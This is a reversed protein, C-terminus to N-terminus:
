CVFRLIETFELFPIGLFGAFLDFLELSSIPNVTGVLINSIDVSLLM